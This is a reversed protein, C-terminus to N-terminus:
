DHVVKIWATGRPACRAPMLRVDFSVRTTNEANTRAGHAHLSTFLLAQGVKMEVPALARPWVNLYREGRARREVDLDISTQLDTIHLARTGSVDTLPM